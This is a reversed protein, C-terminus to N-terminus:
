ISKASPIALSQSEVALQQLSSGLSWRLQYIERCKKYQTFQRKADRVNGYVKWCGSYKCSKGRHEIFGKVDPLPYGLFLGIEHPFAETQRFKEILENLCAQTSQCSYGKSKLLNIVEDTSLDRSLLQPRYFYILARNKSSRMLLLHIGKPNLMQNFNRIDHKLVTLSQLSCSFLNGTKIGALTPSCHKIVSEESM